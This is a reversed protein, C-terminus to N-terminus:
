TKTISVYGTLFNNKLFDQQSILSIKWNFNLLIQFTKYGNFKSYSRHTTTAIQNQM